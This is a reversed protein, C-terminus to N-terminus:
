RAPVVARVIFPLAKRMHITATQPSRMKEVYVNFQQPNSSSLVGSLGAM